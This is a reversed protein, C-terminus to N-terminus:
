REKSEASRMYATMVDEQSSIFTEMTDFYAGMPSQSPEGFRNRDGLDPDPRGRSASPRRSEIRRAPVALRAPALPVDVGTGGTRHRNIAEELDLEPLGRVDYLLNLDMPVGLAALKAFAHLLGAIGNSRPRDLSVAHHPRGALTDGVFGSLVGGPGVEVFVRAGDAYMREITRQFLVPRAPGTAALEVIAETGGPFTSAVSCSYTPVRPASVGFTRLATALPEALIEYHSTHFPRDFPLKEAFIRRERCHAAFASEDQPLVAVVVQHPCNDNVVDLSCGSEKGLSPADTESVGLAFLAARPIGELVEVHKGLEGHLRPIAAADVIGGAVMAVWEGASHGCVMDPKIGLACALRYMALGAARAIPASRHPHCLAAEAERREREDFRPPPFLYPSVRQAGADEALVDYREFAARMLPFAVTLDRTADVYPSGEGPFMLAVGEGLSADGHYHVGSRDDISSGGGERLRETAGRLKGTLDSADRAVVALRHGCPRERLRANLARALLALDVDAADELDRVLREVREALGDCSDAELVVLECPWRRYLSELGLQDVEAYEELVAHANVGGFGFASVGARRPGGGPRMWPRTETNVYVSSCPGRALAHPRNCNATPPLTRHYLALATKILSAIGAAVLTHGIMSKVSGVAISGNRGSRGFFGNVVELETRDGAATGTGHVEILDVTDRSVGSRAYAREIALMEGKRSPSLLATSKGDSSSGIGKLLAYIRDGDREADALRKLVLMGVGEGLVTGNSDVDFPRCVGDGSLAGISSFVAMLSPDIGVHVAGAISLDSAGALLNRVALETVILGTACAADVVFNANMFDFRNAVRGAVVNPVVGPVTEASFPPLGALMETEIRALEEAGLDPGVSELIELLKPVGETRQWLAKAGPGDDAARGVIVETREGDLETDLCNADALAEQACRLVLFQDPDAGRVASPPVRLRVPDFKFSDELFAGKASDLHGIWDATSDLYPQPNWRGVPVDGVAVVKNLVNSWYSSLDPAKAFMCAMGVIAVDRNSGHENLGLERTHDSM